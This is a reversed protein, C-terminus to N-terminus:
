FDLQDISSAQKAADPKAPAEKKKSGGAPASSVAGDIHRNAPLVIKAADLKSKLLPCDNAKPNRVDWIRTSYSINMFDNFESLDMVVQKGIYSKSRFVVKDNKAIEDATQVGTAINLSAFKKRNSEKSLDKFFLERHVKGAQNSVVHRLCEFEIFASGNPGGDPDANVIEYHGLGAALKDYGGMDKPDVGGMEIEFDDEVQVDM